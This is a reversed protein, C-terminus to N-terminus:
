ALYGANAREHDYREATTPLYYPLTIVPATASPSGSICMYVHLQCVFSDPCAQRVNYERGFNTSYRVVAIIVCQKPGTSMRINYSVNRRYEVDSSVQQPYLGRSRNCHHKYLLHAHARAVIGDASSCTVGNPRDVVVFLTLCYKVVIM